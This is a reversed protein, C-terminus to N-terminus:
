WLRNREGIKNWDCSHEGSNRKVTIWQIVVPRASPSRAQNEDNFCWIFSKKLWQDLRTSALEDLTDKKLAVIKRTLLPFFFIKNKYNSFRQNVGFFWIVHVPCLRKSTKEGEWCSVPCVVVPRSFFPLLTEKNCFFTFAFYMQGENVNARKWVM